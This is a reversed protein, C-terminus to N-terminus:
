DLSKICRHLDPPTKACADAKKLDENVGFGWGVAIARIGNQKAGEIDYRTDGIMVTSNLDLKEASLLHAIIDSKESRSEDVAGYVKTIFGGFGFHNIVKQAYEENKSTACICQYGNESLEKVTQIIGEYASAEFIGGNRYHTRYLEVANEIAGKDNTGLEVSFSWHLPPGIYPSLEADTRTEKGLERLAERFCRFVGQSSDVLTGDLDFLLTTIM